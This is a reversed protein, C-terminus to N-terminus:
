NKIKDIHRAISGLTGHCRFHHAIIEILPPHLVILMKKKHTFKLFLYESKIDVCFDAIGWITHITRRVRGQNLVMKVTMAHKTGYLLQLCVACVVPITLKNFM